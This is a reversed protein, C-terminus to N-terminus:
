NERNQSKRSNIMVGKFLNTFADLTEGEKM